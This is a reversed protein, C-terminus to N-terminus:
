LAARLDAASTLATAVAKAGQSELAQQLLATDASSSEVILLRLQRKMINGM